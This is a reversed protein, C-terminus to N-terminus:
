EGFRVRVGANYDQKIQDATRAYNYIRVDDITGNFKNYDNNNTRRKGIAIFDIDGVDNFFAQTSDNSTDYTKSIEEGNLYAKNGLSDITVIFHNWINLQFKEDLVFDLLVSFNEWVIFRLDGENSGNNSFISVTSGLDGQDNASFLAGHVSDEAYFWLSISGESFNSRNLGLITDNADNSPLLVYDDVGDFEIGYWVKGDTWALGSDNAGDVGTGTNGNGSSDILSAGDASGSSNEDFKWHGVPKGQNYDWAIQAQTRAYDYIRVDDILGNFPYFNSVYVRGIWLEETTDINGVLSVDATDNQKIGNIYLKAVDDRDVIIMIHHWEGNNLSPGWNTKATQNDGEITFWIQGDTELLVFYGNGSGRRKDCITQYTGNYATKIWTSLSFNTTSGFNFVSKDGFDIYDSGDFQGAYGIKGNAHHEGTGHWTGDLSSSAYDAAVSGIMEDMKWWAVPPAGEFPDWAADSAKDTRDHGISVIYGGASEQLIDEAIMAYPFFGIRDIEATILGNGDNTRGINLAIANSLNGVSAITGSIGGTKDLGDIYIKCGGASSEDFVVGVTQWTNDSVSESGYVSFESVGDSVEFYPIGDGQGYDLGFLWGVSGAANDTRKSIIAVDGTDASKLTGILSFDASSAIDFYNNDALYAYGAGALSLATTAEELFGTTFYNGSGGATLNKCNSLSVECWSGTDNYNNKFHWEAAARGNNYLLAIERQSLARNYIRVEDITGKFFDNLRDNQGILFHFDNSSDGTVDTISAQGWGNLYTISQSMGDIYIYLDADRDYVGVVHHWNGDNVTINAEVWVFTNSDQEHLLFRPKGNTYVEGYYFGDVNINGNDKAIFHRRSSVDTLKIWAGLTFDGTGFDLSGDAPDGVNVYDGVGDFEGGSGFRGEATWHEGSGNWTGTNSNGSSDAVTNGSGESFKWHGVLGDALSSVEQGIQAAGMYEDAGIDWGTDYTLSHRIDGDIDDSFALNSDASLDVGQNRAGTDAGSLHFNDNAEDVFIVNTNVFDATSSAYTADDSLNHTSTSDFTGSFGTTCDQTINNKATFVSSGNYGVGCNHVTNNYVYFSGVASSLYIGYNDFNYFINNWIKLTTIDNDIASIGTQNTGSGTRRVILHSIRIDTGSTSLNFEIGKRNNSVSAQNLQLGEIRVYNENIDLVEATASNELRYKGENWKGDHRAAETTYIRIYNSASTTWDTIVVATTDAASWAGDIKAIAIASDGLESGTGSVTFMNNSSSALRWEDGTQLTLGDDYIGLVNDVLIQTSTTAIVQATIYQYSNNRFLEVTNDGSLEGTGTGSFVRTTTATLDTTQGTPALATEWASLGSYDGGSQMITSVFETPTNDEEAGFTMFEGVASQNNYETEIWQATRAINSFHVEYIIGNFSFVTSAGAIDDGIAVATPSLISDSHTITGDAAGNLYYAMGDAETSSRVWVVNADVNLPVVSDSYGEWGSDYTYLNLPSFNIGWSPNFSDFTFLGGFDDAERKINLYVTYEGTGITPINPSSIIIRDKTDDNFRVGGSVWAPSGDFDGDNGNKTSDYTTSGTGEALHWVGVYNDDWVGTTTALDTQMSANGYYMYIVKDTTSSIDIKIWYAIEGTSSSYKEREYKLLTEGDSDTFVIDAGTSSAVKGGNGTFILDTDTTTALVPFDTENSMVQDAEIDIRKRYSWDSSYWPDLHGYAGKDNRPARGVRDNRPISHLSLPVSHRLLGTTGAGDTGNGSADDNVPNSRRRENAGSMRAGRLSLPTGFAEIFFEGQSMPPYKLTAKYYNTKGSKIQDQAQTGASAVRLGDPRLPAYASSQAFVLALPQDAYAGSLSDGERQTREPEGAELREIREVKVKEDEVWFVVDMDQDRRNINTISFYVEASNFGNYVKKDSQIILTEGTNDDTWALAIKQGNYTFHKPIEINLPKDMLYNVYRVIGVATLLLVTLIIIASLHKKM